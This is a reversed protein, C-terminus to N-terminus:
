WLDKPMPKQLTRRPPHKKHALHGQVGLIPRAHHLNKRRSLYVNKSGNPREVSFINSSHRPYFGMMMMLKRKIVSVHLTFDSIIDYLPTTGWGPPSHRRARPRDLLQRRERMPSWGGWSLPCAAEFGTGGGKLCYSVRDGKERECVCEREREREPSHRPKSPLVESQRYSLSLVGAQRRTTVRAVDM